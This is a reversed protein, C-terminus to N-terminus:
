GGRRPLVWLSACPEEDHVNAYFRVTGPFLYVAATEPGFGVSLPFQVVKTAVPPLPGENGRDALPEAIEQHFVPEGGDLSLEGARRPLVVFAFDAVVHKWM